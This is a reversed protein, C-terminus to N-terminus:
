HLIGLRKMEKRRFTEDKGLKILYDKKTLIDKLSSDKILNSNHSSKLNLAIDIALDMPSSPPLNNYILKALKSGEYFLPNDDEKMLRRMIEKMENIIEKDKKKM